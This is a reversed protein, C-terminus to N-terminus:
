YIELIRPAVPAAGNLCHKCVANMEELISIIKMQM